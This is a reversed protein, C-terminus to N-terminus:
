ADNEKESDNDTDKSLLRYNEQKPANETKRSREIIIDETEYELGCCFLIVMNKKFAIKKM